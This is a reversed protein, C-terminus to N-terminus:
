ASIIQVVKPTLLQNAVVGGLGGGFAAGAMSAIQQHEPAVQAAIMSGVMGGVIGGIAANMLAQPTKPIRTIRGFMGSGGRRGGYRRKAMSIVRRRTTRSHVHHVVKHAGARFVAWAKKSVGYKKIIWKPLGTM